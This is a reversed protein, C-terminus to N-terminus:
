IFLIKATKTITAFKIGKDTGNNINIKLLSFLPVTIIFNEITSSVMKIATVIHRSIRYINQNGEFFLINIYQPPTTLKAERTNNEYATKTVRM